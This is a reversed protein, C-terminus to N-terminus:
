KKGNQSFRVWADNLIRSSKSLNDSKTETGKSRRENSENQNVETKISKLVENQFLEPIEMGYTVNAIEAITDLANIYTKLSNFYTTQVTVLARAMTGIEIIEDQTYYRSPKDDAHYPYVNDTIGSLRDINADNYLNSINIEDDKTLSYHDEGVDFGAIIVRQCTAKMANIKEQRAVDLTIADIIDVEVVEDPLDYEPPLPEYDALGSLQDFETETIEYLNCIKYKGEVQECEKRMWHAHYPEGNIMIYQAQEVDCLLIYKHKKQYKAFMDSMSVGIYNNEEDFAKYYKREM